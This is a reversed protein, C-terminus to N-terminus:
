AVIGLWDLGDPLAASAYDVQLVRRRAPVRARHSAHLIPTAYAWADGARAECVATGLRGAAATAEAAPVRGLRHSGPAILLAANNIDCDDLHLRITVMGALIEFPPEVHTAGSKISWPGFGAVDRRERVAITRDQHWAVSWNTPATKDFLLARVARAADGQLGAALRGIGGARGLLAAFAPHGFVRVGSRGALVTDAEFHLPVIDERSVAALYREAGDIDFRLSTDGPV